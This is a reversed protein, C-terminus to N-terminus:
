YNTETDIGMYHRYVKAFTSLVYRGLYNGKLIMYNDYFYLTGFKESNEITCDSIEIYVDKSECFIENEDTFLVDRTIWKPVGNEDFEILCKRPHERMEDTIGYVSLFKSKHANDVM